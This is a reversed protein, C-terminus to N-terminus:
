YDSYSTYIQSGIEIQHNIAVEFGKSHLKFASLNSTLLLSSVKTIKKLAESM